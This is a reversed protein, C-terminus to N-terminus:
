KGIPTGLWCGVRYSPFLLEMKLLPKGCLHDKKDSEVFGLGFFVLLFALYIFGVIDLFDKM